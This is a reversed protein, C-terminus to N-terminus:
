TESPRESAGKGLKTHKGSEVSRSTCFRGVPREAYGSGPVARFATCPARQSRFARCNSRSVATPKPRDLQGTPLHVGYRPCLCAPTPSGGAAAPLLAQAVWVCLSPTEPTEQEPSAPGRQRACGRRSRLGRMQRGWLTRCTRWDLRRGHDPARRPEHKRGRRRLGELRRCGNADDGGGEAGM